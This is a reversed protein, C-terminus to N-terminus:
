DLCTAVLINVDLHVDEYILLSMVRSEAYAVVVISTRDQDSGNGNGNGDDYHFHFENITLSSRRLVIDVLCCV